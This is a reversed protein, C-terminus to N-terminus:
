KTLIKLGEKTLAVTHEFHAAPGGHTTFVAWGNQEFSVGEEGQYIMPEIALVQGPQLREGRDRSRFNPVAPDEHLNKGIGHGVLERVAHFGGAEIYTQIFEGIDGVYLSEKSLNEKLYDIVLDLSRQAAEILKRRGETLPEVGVTFPTDTFYGKYKMGIDLSVVDGEHIERAPYPLGHVIESNISTCISGPFPTPIGFARYGNFAPEGGAARIQKEAMADIEATTAGPKVLAALSKLIEALQRGGEAMIEIEEQTKLHVM